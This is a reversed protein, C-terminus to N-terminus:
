RSALEKSLAIPQWFHRFFKGMPTEPGTRTLLDNDVATLMNVGINQNFFELKGLFALEM